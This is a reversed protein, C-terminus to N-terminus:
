PKALARRVQGVHEDFHGVLSYKLGEEYTRAGYYPKKYATGLEADTWDDLLALNIQTNARLKTVSGAIPKGRSTRSTVFNIADVVANPVTPAKGQKLQKLQTATLRAVSALHAATAAVTWGIETTVGAQEATLGELFRATEESKAEADARLQQIHPNATTVM